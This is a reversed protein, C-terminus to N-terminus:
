LQLEALDPKEPSKRNAKGGLDEQKVMLSFNTGAAKRQGGSGLDWFVPGPVCLFPIQKM